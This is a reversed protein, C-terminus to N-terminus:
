FDLGHRQRIDLLRDPIQPSLALLTAGLARLHPLLQRQYYPLAINCAPCGAFRFFIVVVPGKELVSDLEVINGRVEPVSFSEIRDGVKVFAARDAGEVLRRRQDINVQLTEPRWTAVRHAHLDALLQRLSEPPTETM